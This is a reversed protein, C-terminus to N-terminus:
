QARGTSMILQRMFSHTRNIHSELRKITAADEETRLQHLDWTAAKTLANLKLILSNRMAKMERVKAQSNM